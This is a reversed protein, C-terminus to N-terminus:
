GEAGSRYVFFTTTGTELMVFRWDLGPQAPDYLRSRFLHSGDAKLVGLSGAVSNMVPEVAQEITLSLAKVDVEAWEQPDKVLEPEKGLKLWWGELTSHSGTLPGAAYSLTPLLAAPTTVEHDGLWTRAIEIFTTGDDDEYEVSVAIRVSLDASTIHGESESVELSRPTNMEPLAAAVEMLRAVAVSADNIKTAFWITTEQEDRFDASHIWAIRGQSSDLLPMKDVPVGAEVLTAFTAGRINKAVTSDPPLHAGPLHAVAPQGVSAPIPVAWSPPTSDFVAKPVPPFTSTPCGVDRATHRIQTPRRGDAQGWLTKAKTSMGFPDDLESLRAAIEQTNATWEDDTEPAVPGDLAARYLEGVVECVEPRAASKERESRVRAVAAMVLGTVVLVALGVGLIRRHRAGLNLSLFRRSWNM